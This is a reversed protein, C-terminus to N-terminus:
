TPTPKRYDTKLEALYEGIPLLLTQGPQGKERSKLTVAVHDGVRITRNIVQGRIERVVPM